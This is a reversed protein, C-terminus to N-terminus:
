PTLSWGGMRDIADGDTRDLRMPTVSVHGHHVAHYDTGPEPKWQPDEGGIWYYDKGRPDVKRVLTDHYVRTGLRTLLVGRVESAPLGPFNVNLLMRPPVDQALVQRLIRGLCAAPETFDSPRRTALSAAIAPVGQMVGELAAAVTGSYYVDEGMNPGQNIGSIVFDPREVLMGHFAILVCDTPTGDVCYVDPEFEQIRLPRHLTLSQSTASQNRDPAIITVKGFPRLHERLQKLAPSAIGDDNTVLIHM